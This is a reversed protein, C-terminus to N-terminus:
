PPLARAWRPRQLRRCRRGRGGPSGEALVGLPRLHTGLALHVPAEGLRVERARVDIALDGCRLREPVREARAAERKRRLLAKVRAQLERVGFPKGLYDDAGLELGVVRDLEAM